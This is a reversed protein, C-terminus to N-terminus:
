APVRIQLRGGETAISANSSSDMAKVFRPSSIQAITIMGDMKLGSHIRRKTRVTLMYKKTGAPAIGAQGALICSDRVM